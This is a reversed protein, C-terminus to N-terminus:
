WQNYDKLYIMEKIQQMIIAHINHISQRINLYQHCLIYGMLHRCRQSLQDFVSKKNM